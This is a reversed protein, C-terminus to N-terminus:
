ELTEESHITVELDGVVDRHIENACPVLHKHLVIEDVCESSLDIGPVHVSRAIEVYESPVTQVIPSLFTNEPCENSGQQHWPNRKYTHEAGVRVYRM